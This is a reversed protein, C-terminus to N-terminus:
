APSQLGAKEYEAKARNVAALTLPRPFVNVGGATIRSSRITTLGTRVIAPMAGIPMRAAPAIIVGGVTMTDDVTTTDQSHWCVASSQVQRWVVSRRASITTMIGTTAGITTTVATATIAAIATIVATATTAGSTRAVIAAMADIGWSSRYSEVQQVDPFRSKRANSPHFISASPCRKFLRHGAVSWHNRVDENSDGNQRELLFRKLCHKQAM